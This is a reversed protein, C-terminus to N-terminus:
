ALATEKKSRFRRKIRKAAAPRLPVAKLEVTYGIGLLIKELTMVSSFEGNEIKSIHQQSVGIEEALQSQNLGQRIRYEIVRKAIQLKQEEVAYLEKFYPDKLKERLHQNASELKM